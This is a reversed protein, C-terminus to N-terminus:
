EEVYTDLHKWIFNGLPHIRFGEVWAKHALLFPREVIPLYAADEMVLRQCDQIAKLAVNDDVVFTNDILEDSYADGWWFRNSSPPVRVTHWYWWLMDANHWTYGGIWLDHDAAGITAEIDDFVLVSIELDVGVEAWQEKLVVATRTYPEYNTTLITLELGGAYGAQALLSRAMEPDHPYMNEVAPDYGWMLSTLPGYAVKGMNQWAHELVDERNTAYLLAKRVLLGKGEEDDNVPSRRHGSPIPRGSELGQEIEDSLSAVNFGVYSMSSRPNVIVEVNPDGRLEKMLATRPSFGIMMNAEGTKFKHERSIDTPIIEILIGDLLAPGRNQYLEPGWTYDDNRVLVLRDDRKWEEVKFPGTGDFKSIGYALGYEEAYRPSIISSSTTAFWDYLWRDWKKLHIRVTYDDLKEADLVNIVSDAHASWPEKARRVTYVVADANFPDGSHFKVDRRLYFDIFLGDQDVEWSEALLPIYNMNEDFTMLTDHTLAIVQISWDLKTRHIDLSNADVAQVAKIWGGVTEFSWNEDDSLFSATLVTADASVLKVEDFWAFAQAGENDAAVYAFRLRIKYTGTNDFYSSVDKDSVVYWENDVLPEGLQNDIDVIAGNPKVIAAYVNQQTPVGGVHGKKWAYSLTVTSGAEIPTPITQEWYGVGSVGEGAPSSIMVSGGNEYGATDWSGTPKPSSPLVLQGGPVLFIYAAAIVILLIIIMRRGSIKVM